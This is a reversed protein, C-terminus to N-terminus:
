SLLAYKLENIPKLSPQFLLWDGKEQAPMKALAKRLFLKDKSWAFGQTTNGSEFFLLYSIHEGFSEKLKPLLKTLDKPTSNTEKFDEQSLFVFCVNQAALYETRDLTKGLLNDKPNLPNEGQKLTFHLTLDAKDKEYRVGSVWPALGKLSVTVTKQSLMDKPNM